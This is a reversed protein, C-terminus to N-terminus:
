RFLYLAQIGLFSTTALGLGVFLVIATLILYGKLRRFGRGLLGTDMKKLASGFAGAGAGAAIGCLVAMVAFFGLAVIPMGAVIQVVGSDSAFGTFLLGIVAVVLVAAILQLVSVVRMGRALNRLVQGEYEFFHVGEAGAQGGDPTSQQDSM